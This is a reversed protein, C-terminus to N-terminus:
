ISKGHDYEERPFNTAAFDGFHKIAAVDYARAADIDSHFCGLYMNRARGDQRVDGVRIQAQWQRMGKCWTVGKFRCTHSASKRTRNRMNQQVTAVRLNHRQNDLGDGNRHDVEVDPQADMIFRHMSVTLSHGNGIYPRREAYWLDLDKRARRAYWKFASVSAYDDDDVV